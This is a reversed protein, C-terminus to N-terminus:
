IWFRQIFEFLYLKIVKRKNIDASSIITCIYSEKNTIKRQKTYFYVNAYYFNSGWWISFYM